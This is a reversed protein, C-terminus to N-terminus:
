THAVRGGDGLPSHAIFDLFRIGSNTLSPNQIVNNEGATPTLGNNYLDRLIGKVLDKRDKLDPNVAELGADLPCGLQIHFDPVRGQMQQHPSRLFSLIRVHTPTFRDILQLYIFLEDEQPNKGLAVNLLVNRLFQLKEIQHTGVAIQTAKFVTSIFIENEQLGELSFSENIAKLQEFDDALNKFWEDRRKSVPSGWFLNFIEASIKGAIPITSLATKISTHTIDIDSSEPYTESRKPFLRIPSETM